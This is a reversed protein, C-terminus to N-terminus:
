VDGATERATAALWDPDPAFPRSFDLHGQHPFSERPNSGEVLFRVTRVAGEQSGKVAPQTLTNVIGQILLSEASTSQMHRSLLEISFDVVLEGNPLLYLAHVQTTRPVIPTLLERPGEILATLIQRCNDVTYRTVPIPRREPVLLRGDEGAFFLQVERMEIPEADMIEPPPPLPENSIALPNQGQRVMEYVLLIVCFALILTLVAWAALLSKKFYLNRDSPM